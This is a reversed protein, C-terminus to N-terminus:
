KTGLVVHLRIADLACALEFLPAELIGPKVVRLTHAARMDHVHELMSVFRLQFVQRGIGGDVRQYRQPFPQSFRKRDCAHNARNHGAEEV